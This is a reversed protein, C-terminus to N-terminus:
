EERAESKEKDGCIGILLKWDDSDPDEGDREREEMRTEYENLLDSVLGEARTVLDDCQAMWEMADKCNKFKKVTTGHWSLETDYINVLCKDELNDPSFSNHPDDGLTLETRGIVRHIFDTGGGTAMWGLGHLKAFEYIENSINM